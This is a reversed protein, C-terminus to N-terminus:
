PRGRIFRVQLVRHNETSPENSTVKPDEKPYVMSSIAHLVPVGPIVERFHARISQGSMQGRLRRTLNVLSIDTVRLQYNTRDLFITGTGHPGHISPAPAFDIRILSDGDVAELGSFDFCHNILFREDAFDALEPLTITAWKGAFVGSPYERTGLMKGPAYRWT